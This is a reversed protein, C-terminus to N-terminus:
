QFEFNKEMLDHWSNCVKEQFRFNVKLFYHYKYIVCRCSSNTKNVDIGNSM